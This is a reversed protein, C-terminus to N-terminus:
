SDRDLLGKNEFINGIVEFYSLDWMEGDEQKWFPTWDRDDEHVLEPFLYRFGRCGNVWEVVVLLSELPNDKEQGPLIIFKCVDGEYIEKGNKDKLGTYQMIEYRDKWRPLYWDEQSNDFITFMYKQEKDWARFKIPRM